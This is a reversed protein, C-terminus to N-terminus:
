KGRKLKDIVKFTLDHNPDGYLLVQVQETQDFVFTYREEKAVREIAKLVKDKLPGLVKERHQALETDKRQAYDRAQGSLSQIEQQATRKATETMMAEKKQYEDIREEISKQMMALSDQVPKAFAELQKEAARAEPIEQFIKASNVFGVRPTQGTAAAACLLSVLTVAITKVIIGIRERM